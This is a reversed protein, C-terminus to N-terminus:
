RKSHFSGGRVAKDCIMARINWVTLGGAAPVRPDQLQRVYQMGAMKTIDDLKALEASNAPALGFRMLEAVCERIQQHIVGIVM